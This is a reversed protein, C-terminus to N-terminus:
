MRVAVAKYHCCALFAAWQESEKRTPTDKGVFTREGNVTLVARWLPKHSLGNVPSSHYQLSETSQWREQAWRNLASKFDIDRFAPHRDGVSRQKNELGKVVTPDEENWSTTCTYAERTRAAIKELAAHMEQEGQLAEAVYERDAQTACLVYYASDRFRARGRSQIMRIPTMQATLRVVFNCTTIDIGEEAVSTAVLLNVTKGAAFAELVERQQHVTMRNQDRRNTHGLFVAPLFDEAIERDTNGQILDVLDRATQRTEVFIIGRLERPHQRSEKRLIDWLAVIDCVCIM